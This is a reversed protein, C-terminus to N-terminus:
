KEVGFVTLPLGREILKRELESSDLKVNLEIEGHPGSGQIHLPMLKPWIVTWFAFENQASEKAWAALREWGGLNHAVLQIATRVEMTLKNPTGKERGATREGKQFLAM